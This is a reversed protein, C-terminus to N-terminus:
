LLAKLRQARRLDKDRGFLELIAIQEALAPTFLQREKWPVPVRSQPVMPAGRLHLGGMVDIPLPALSLRTLVRSEFLPSPSPPGPARNWHELLRRADAEGTLLDVDAMEEDAGSLVAAASGIIWWPDRLIASAEAVVNLTAALDPHVTM